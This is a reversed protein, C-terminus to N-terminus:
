RNGCSSRPATPIGQGPEPGPREFTIAALVAKLSMRCARDDRHLVVAPDFAGSLVM